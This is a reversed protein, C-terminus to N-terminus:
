QASYNILVTTIVGMAAVLVSATAIMATILRGFRADFHKTLADTRQSQAQDNKHITELLSQHITDMRQNTTKIDERLERKDERMEQRFERLDQKMYQMDDRLYSLTQHFDEVPRTQPTEAM